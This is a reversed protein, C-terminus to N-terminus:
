DWQKARPCSPFSEGERYFSGLPPFYPAVARSDRVDKNTWCAWFRTEEALVRLLTLISECFCLERPITQHRFSPFSLVVEVRFVLSQQFGLGWQESMGKPECVGLHWSALHSSWETKDTNPKNWVKRMLEYLNGIKNYRKFFSSNVLEPIIRGKKM